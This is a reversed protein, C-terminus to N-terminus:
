PLTKQGALAANNPQRASIRTEGLVRALDGGNNGRARFLHSSPVWIVPQLFAYTNMERLRGLTLHHGFFDFLYFALVTIM